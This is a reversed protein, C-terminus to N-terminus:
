HVGCSLRTKRLDKNYLGICMYYIIILVYVIKVYLIVHFVYV